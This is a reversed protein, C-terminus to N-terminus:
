FFLHFLFTDLNQLNQINLKKLNRLLYSIQNLTLSKLFMPLNNIKENFWHGLELIKVTHPLDNIEKQFLNGFKLSKISKPLNNQYVPHNFHEGFEIGIIAVNYQMVGYLEWIMNIGYIKLKYYMKEYNKVESFHIKLPLPKYLYTNKYGSNYKDLSTIKNVKDNNLYRSLKYLTHYNM